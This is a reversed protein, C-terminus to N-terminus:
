DHAPTIKVAGTGLTMDVLLDDAIIPILKSMIFPHKAKKGIVNKYREDQSHVAIAVDGLM